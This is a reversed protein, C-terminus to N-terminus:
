IKNVNIPKKADDVSLELFRLVIPCFIKSDFKTEGVLFESSLIFISNAQNQM